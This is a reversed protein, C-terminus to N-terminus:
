RGRKSTNRPCLSRRYHWDVKYRNTFELQNLVAVERAIGQISLCDGRNPTLDLDVITDPTFLSHTIAEGLRSSDPLELIGENDDGLGLEKQSCLMGESDIGRIKTKEIKVGDKLETGVLALATKLGARANAAGCVVTVSGEGYSVKCENLHNSDPVSAISQIEAIVVGTLGDGVQEYGDVELGAMTLQHFFEENQPVPGVWEELWAKSFKM